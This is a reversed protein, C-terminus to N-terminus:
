RERRCAEDLAAVLAPNDTHTAWHRFTAATPWNRTLWYTEGRASTYVAQETESLWFTSPKGRYIADGLNIMTTEKPLAADMVRHMRAIQATKVTNRWTRRKIM